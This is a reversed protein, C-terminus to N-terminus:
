EIEGRLVALARAQREFSAGCFLKLLEGSHRLGHAQAVANREQASKAARQRRNEPTDAQASPWDPDFKRKRATTM